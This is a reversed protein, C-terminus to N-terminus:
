VRETCIVFFFVIIGTEKTKCLDCFFFIDNLYLIKNRKTRYQSVNTYILRLICYLFFFVIISVIFTNRKTEFLSCSNDVYNTTIFCYSKNSVFTIKICNFCVTHDVHCISPQNEKQVFETTIKFELRKIFNSIRIRTTNRM